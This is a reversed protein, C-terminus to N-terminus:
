LNSSRGICQVEMLARSDNVFRMYDPYQGVFRKILDIQELTVQM